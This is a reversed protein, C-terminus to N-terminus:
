VLWVILLVTLILGLAAIVLVTAGERSSMFAYWSDAAARLRGTTAAESGLPVRAPMGGRKLVEDVLQAERLKQIAERHEGRSALMAAEAALGAARATADARDAAHQAQDAAVRAEEGLRNAEAVFDNSREPPYAPPPPPHILEPPPRAQTITSDAQPRESHRRPTPPPQARASRMRTTADPNGALPITEEGPLESPPLPPVDPDPPAVKGLMSADFEEASELRQIAERQADNLQMTDDASGDHAESAAEVRQRSLALVEDPIRQKLTSPEHSPEPVRPPPLRARSRAIADRAEQARKILTPGDEGWDIDGDPEKAARSAEVQRSGPTAPATPHTASRLRVSPVSPAPEPVGGSLMSPGLSLPLRESRAKNAFEGAVAREFWRMQRMANRRVFRALSSHNDDRYGHAILWQDFRDRLELASQ